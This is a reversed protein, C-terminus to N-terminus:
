ARAAAARGSAPALPCQTRHTRGSSNGMDKRWPADSAELTFGALRRWRARSRSSRGTGKNLPARPGAAFRASRRPAQARNPTAAVGDREPECAKTRERNSVSARAMKRGRRPTPTAASCAVTTVPALPMTQLRISNKENWVRTLRARVGCTPARVATNISAKGPRIAQRECGARRLESTQACFIERALESM